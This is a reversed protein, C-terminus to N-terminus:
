NILAQLREITLPKEIFDTVLPHDLAREKDNPDVSSSLIFIILQKKINEDMKEILDLVDWGTLLPMNIDLFLITKSKTGPKKLENNIYTVGDDAMNFCRVDTKNGLAHKLTLNYLMIAVDDDDIIVFKDTATM